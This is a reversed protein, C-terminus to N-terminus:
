IPPDEVPQLRYTRPIPTDFLVPVCPTIHPVEVKHWGYTEIPFREDPGRLPLAPDIGLIYYHSQVGCRPCYTPTEYGNFM